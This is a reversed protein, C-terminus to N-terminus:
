RTIRGITEGYRVRTEIGKRSHHWIDDDIIVRGPPVIILVTYGGLEFYGKEVGRQCAGGATQHQIISGVNTAGVDIEMITGLTPTNILCWQRYNQGWIGPRHRLALPSVSYLRGAVSHIPGQEGTDIYGFRHYDSPALRFQLCLGDAFQPEVPRNGLLRRLTLRTGKVNLITNSQLAIVKLRSEAPAILCRPDADIPRADPKLQRIFFDNFSKFGGSPVQFEDMNINFHRVFPEIKKSSEPLHFKRTYRQSFSQRSLLMDTIGRGWVTAYLKALLTGQVVKETEITGSRRNYLSIEPFPM